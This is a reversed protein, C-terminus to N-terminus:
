YDDRRIAEKLEQIEQNLNISIPTNDQSLEHQWRNLGIFLLEMERESLGLLNFVTQTETRLMVM